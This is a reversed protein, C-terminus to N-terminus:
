LNATAGQSQRERERKGVREKSRVTVKKETNFSVASGLVDKLPEEQPITSDSVISQISPLKAVYSKTEMERSATERWM